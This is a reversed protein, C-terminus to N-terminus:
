GQLLNVNVPEKGYPMIIYITIRIEYFSLKDLILLPIIIIM